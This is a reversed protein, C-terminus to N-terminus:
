KVVVVYMSGNANAMPGLSVLSGAAFTKSYLRYPANGANLTQQTNTWSSLWIPAAVVTNWGVYVTGAAAIRFQLWPNATNARDSNATRIALGGVYASPITTWTYTRDVYLLSGITLPAVAYSSRSIETIQQTTSPPTPTWTVDLNRVQGPAGRGFQLATFDAIWQSNM